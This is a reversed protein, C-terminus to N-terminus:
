TLKCPINDFNFHKQTKLKISDINLKIMLRAELNYIDEIEKLRDISTDNLSQQLYINNSKSPAVDQRDVFQLNQVISRNNVYIGEIVGGNLVFSLNRSFNNMKLWLQLYPQDTNLCFQVPYCDGASLVLCSDIKGKLRKKPDLFDKIKARNEFGFKFIDYWM